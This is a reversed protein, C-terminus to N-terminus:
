STTVARLLRYVERFKQLMPDEEGKNFRASFMAVRTGRGSRSPFVDDLEKLADAVEKKASGAEELDWLAELGGEELIQQQNKKNKLALFYLVNAAVAKTEEGDEGKLLHVMTEIVGADVLQPKKSWNSALKVLAPLLVLISRTTEEPAERVLATLVEIGECGFKLQTQPNLVLYSLRRAAKTKVENEGERALTVFEGISEDQVESHRALTVRKPRTSVPPGNQVGAVDSSAASSRRLALAAILQQVDDSASKKAFGGSDGDAGRLLAVLAEIGGAEAITVKNRQEAAM